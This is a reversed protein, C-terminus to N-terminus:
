AKVEGNYVLALMTMDDSQEANGVYDNLVKKLDMLLEKTTKEGANAKNLAELLREEGFLEQSENLAETVGDTYLVLRDGKKLTLEQGSYDIGDMGGMVFNRDVKMYEFSKEKARYILPPNHGANVFNFKGTTLNLIGMFATVFMMADNNQCLQDNTKSMVGALDKESDMSIVSNKLMTKAIVMFLAAPVGKGSVDAITILLHEDDVMYFDYFDGGVEKAAQMTAYIDFEECEPAFPFTHPLMSEQINTAVALETAIHEKEMTVKTLNSMYNQLKDTMNNFANALTELEDRTPIAIKKELNGAAIERVGDTLEKIPEVFRNTLWSTINFLLVLASWISIIAVLAFKVMQGNMMDKFSGVQDVIHQRAAQVPTMVENIAIITGFSWKLKKMPAYALFYNQGDMEVIQWGSAGSMMKEVADGLSDSSDKRLDKGDVDNMLGEHNTSLMIKGKDSLVFSIGSKGMLSNDLIDSISKVSCAIAVVGAFGDNDEYPASCTFSPYGDAGVYIDNFTITGREKTNKYWGRETPEYTTLFEETMNIYEKGPANDAAIIYGNKSGIFISSEFQNYQKAMPAIYSLANSMIGIEHRLSPSVGSAQLKAGRHIYVEGPRIKQFRPDPLSREAFYEPNKIVSEVGYALYNTDNTIGSLETEIALARTQAVDTLRGTIQQSTVNEIYGASTVTLQDSQTMFVSDMTYLGYAVLLGMVVLITMSGLLILRFIRNRISGKKLFWLSYIKENM